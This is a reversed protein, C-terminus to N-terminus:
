KKNFSSVDMLYKLYRFKGETQWNMSQLVRKAVQIDEIGLFERCERNTIDRKMLLFWDLLNKEHALRDNVLCFPCHWTRPLKIMGIRGCHFCRVGPRFARGSVGYSESIPRPIYPRHSHLLEDSLWTFTELDLKKTQQPISKMMFPISNPFLIKTKAPAATVIQKPYALVVAGFIPLRINHHALWDRLLECNRDLQAVPSEFGDRQGDERTRILQPPNDRFELMGAINKVELIFGYWPTQVYTDMQFGEDSSPSLDHFVHHEFPIPSRRLVEAVREEGGIGAEVASQKAALIPLLPHGESLRAQGALLGQLKLSFDREKVTCIAVVEM